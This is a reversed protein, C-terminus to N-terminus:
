CGVVDDKVDMVKGVAFGCFSSVDGVIDVECAVVSCGCIEFKKSYTDEMTFCFLYEVLWSVARLVRPWSTTVM